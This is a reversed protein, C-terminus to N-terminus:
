NNKQESFFFCHLDPLTITDLVLAKDGQLAGPTGMNSSYMHIHPVPTSSEWCKKGVM